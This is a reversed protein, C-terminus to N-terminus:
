DTQIILYNSTKWFISPDNISLTYDENGIETLSYSSSPMSTLIKPKRANFTIETWYRIDVSSFKTYDLEAGPVLRGMKILGMEKLERKRALLVYGTNMISDQVTLAIQQMETQHNLGDIQRNQEELQNKMKAIANRNLNLEKKLKNIEVNKDKILEKLHEILRMAQSTSDKSAILSEELLRIRDNQRNLVSEFKMLNYKMSNRASPSEKGSLFLMDDLIAISDLTANMISVAEKYNNAETTQQEMFLLLSDREASLREIEKRNNSCGSLSLLICLACMFPVINRIDFEKM